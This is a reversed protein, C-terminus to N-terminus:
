LWTIEICPSPSPIATLFFGNKWQFLKIDGMIYKIEIGNWMGNMMKTLAITRM